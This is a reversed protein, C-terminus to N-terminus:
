SKPFEMGQKGCSNCVKNECDVIRLPVTNDLDIFNQGNCYKCFVRYKTM